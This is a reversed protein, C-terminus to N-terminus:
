HAKKPWELLRVDYTQPTKPRNTQVYQIVVDKNVTFLGAAASTPKQGGTIDVCLEAEESMEETLRNRISELTDHVDEFSEFDVPEEWPVIMNAAGSSTAAKGAAVLYPALFRRLMERQAFTGPLLADKCQSDKSGVLYIRRLLPLHPAIARLVMEWSWQQKQTKDIIEADALLDDRQLMVGTVGPIAMPGSEPIDAPTRILQQRSVFVVLYPKPLGSSDIWYRVRLTRFAHQGLWILASLLIMLAFCVVIFWWHGTSVTQGDLLKEVAHDVGAAFVELTLGAAIVLLIAGLLNKREVFYIQIQKLMHKVNFPHRKM